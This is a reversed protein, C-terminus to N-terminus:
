NLPEYGSQKLLSLPLFLPQPLDYWDGWVWDSCHKNNVLIVTDPNLCNTQFYLTVSHLGHQFQNDTYTKFVMEDCLLGNFENLKRLAAQQPSEGYHMWGGPLQWSAVMPQKIRRGLLLKKQHVIVVAIGIAPRHFETRVQDVM